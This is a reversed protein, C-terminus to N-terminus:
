SRWACPRDPRRKRWHGAQDRCRIFGAPWAADSGARGAGEEDAERPLQQVTETTTGREGVAPRQLPARDQWGEDPGQALRSIGSAAAIGAALAARRKKQAGDPLVDPIAPRTPLEEMNRGRREPQPLRYAPCDHLRDEPPGARLGHRDGMRGAVM